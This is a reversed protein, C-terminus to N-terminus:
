ESGSEVRPRKHGNVAVVKEAVEAGKSADEEDEEDEEEVVKRKRVRKGKGADGDVAGAVGADGALGAREERGEVRELMKAYGELVGDLAGELKEVREGREVQALADRNFIYLRQKM